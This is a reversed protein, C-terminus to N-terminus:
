FLGQTNWICASLKDDANNKEFGIMKKIIYKPM